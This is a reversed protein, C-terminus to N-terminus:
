MCPDCVMRKRLVVPRGALDSLMDGCTMAIWAADPSFVIVEDGRESIVTLPEIYTVWVDEEMMERASGIVCARFWENAEPERDICYARYATAEDVDGVDCCNDDDPVIGGADMGLGSCRAVRGDWGTVTYGDDHTDVSVLGLEELRALQAPADGYPGYVCELTERSVAFSGSASRSCIHGGRIWYSGDALLPALLCVSWMRWLAADQFVDSGLDSGVFCVADKM